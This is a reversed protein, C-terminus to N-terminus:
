PLIVYLGLVIAIPLAIKMQEEDINNINFISPRNNKPEVVEDVFNIKITEINKYKYDINFSIKENVNFYKIEKSETGAYIGDKDYFDFQLYRDKIHEGTDNVINGKIYGRGYVAKSETINVKPSTIKIEHNNIDVFNEKMALNTFIEVFLFFALFILLYTRFKKITGM